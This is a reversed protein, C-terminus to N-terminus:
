LGANWRNADASIFWFACAQFSLVIKWVRQMAQRFLTIVNQSLSPASEAAKSANVGIVKRQVQNWSKEPESNQNYILTKPVPTAGSQWNFPKNCCREQKVWQPADATGMFSVLLANFHWSWHTWMWKANWHTRLVLVVSGMQFLSEAHEYVGWWQLRWLGELPFCRHSKGETWYWLNMEELWFLSRVEGMVPECLLIESGPCQTILIEIVSLMRQGLSCFTSLFQSIESKITAAIVNSCAHERSNSCISIGHWLEFGQKHVKISPSLWM